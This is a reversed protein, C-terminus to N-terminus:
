HSIFFRARNGFFVHSWSHIAKLVTGHHIHVNRSTGGHGRLQTLYQTANFYITM